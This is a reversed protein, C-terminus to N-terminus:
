YKESRCLSAETWRGCEVTTVLIGTAGLVVTVVVDGDGERMEKEKLIERKMEVLYMYPFLAMLPPARITKHKTQKPNTPKSTAGSLCRISKTPKSDEELPKSTNPEEVDMYVISQVPSSSQPTTSQHFLM